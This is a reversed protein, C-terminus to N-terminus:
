RSMGRAIKALERRRRQRIWNRIARRESRSCSVVDEGVRIELKWYDRDVVEIDTVIRRLRETVKM